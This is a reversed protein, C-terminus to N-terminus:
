TSRIIPPSVAQFMYLTQLFLYIWSFNCRTPHLKYNYYSSLFYLYCVTTLNCCYLGSVLVFFLFFSLNVSWLWLMQAINRRCIHCSNPRLWCCVLSGFQRESSAKSILRSSDDNRLWNTLLKCRISFDDPLGLGSWRSKVQFTLSHRRKGPSCALCSLNKEIKSQFWLLYTIGM